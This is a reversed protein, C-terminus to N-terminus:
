HALAQAGVLGSILCQSVGAGYEGGQEERKGILGFADFAPLLHAM